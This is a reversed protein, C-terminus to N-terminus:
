SSYITGFLLLMMLPLVLTFFASVPERLFLRGEMVTMKMCQKMVGNKM